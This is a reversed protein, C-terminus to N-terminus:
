IEKMIAHGISTDSRHAGGSSAAAESSAADPPARDRLLAAELHEPDIFYDQTGVATRLRIATSVRRWVLSLVTDMLAEETEVLYTGAPVDRALGELAFPRHFTVTRSTTRTTM